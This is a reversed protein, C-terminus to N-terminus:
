PVTLHARVRSTRIYEVVLCILYRCKGTSTSQGHQPMKAMLLPTASGHKSLRCAAKGRQTGKRGHSLAFPVDAKDLTRSRAECVNTRLRKADLEGGDKVQSDMRLLKCV